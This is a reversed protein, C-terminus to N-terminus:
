IQLLTVKLRILPKVKSKPNKSPYEAEAKAIMDEVKRSLFEIVSEEKPEVEEEALVVEDIIFPRVTQLPIPKLRFQDGHIELLGIHRTRILVSLQYIRM